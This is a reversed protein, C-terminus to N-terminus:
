RPVGGRDSRSPILCLPPDGPELRQARANCTPSGPHPLGIGGPGELRSLAQTAPWCRILGFQKPARMNCPRAVGSLIEGRLPPSRQFVERHPDHQLRRATQLQRQDRRQGGRRQRGDSKARGRAAQGLGIRERLDQGVEGLSAVAARRRLRQAIGRRCSTALAPRRAVRSRPAM